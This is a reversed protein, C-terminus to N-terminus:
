HPQGYWGDKTDRPFYPLDVLRFGSSAWVIDKLKPTLFIADLDNGGNIAHLREDTGPQTHDVAASLEIVATPGDM